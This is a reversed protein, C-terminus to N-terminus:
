ILDRNIEEAIKIVEELEKIDAYRAQIFMGWQEKTKYGRPMTNRCLIPKNKNKECEHNVCNGVGHCNICLYDNRIEEKEM